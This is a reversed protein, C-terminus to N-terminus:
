KVVRIKINIEEKPWEQSDVELKSMAIVTNMGSIVEGFVSHEGDLFPTGGVTSYANLEEQSFLRNYEKELLKLTPINFVEGIVIYFEFPSELKKPNKDYGRAMAVAGYKHFRNPRIEPSLRYRGIKARHEQTFWDDSNGAQCVFGKSVRYFQTSNFYNEEKVLYVFNARHLPTDEYLAIRITGFRTEIEVIKEENNKGYELLVDKYSQQTMPRKQPKVEKQPFTKESTKSKEEKSNHVKPNVDNKCSILTFLCLFLYIIPSKLLKFFMM